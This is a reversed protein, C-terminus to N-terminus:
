YKRVWRAHKEYPQSRVDTKTCNYIRGDYGYYYVIDGRHEELWYGKEEIIPHGASKLAKNIAAKNAMIAKIEERSPLAWGEYYDSALNWSIDERQKM